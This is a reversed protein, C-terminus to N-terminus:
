GALLDGIAGHAAAVAKSLGGLCAAVDGEARACDEYTEAAAAVGFAGVARASGKLTHALDARWRGDVPGPEALRALIQASQRDFLRLLEAELDREGFTQRALHVLDIPTEGAPSPARAIPDAFARATQALDAEM